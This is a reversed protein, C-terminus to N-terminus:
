LFSLSFTFFSNDRDITVERTSSDRDRMPQGSLAM